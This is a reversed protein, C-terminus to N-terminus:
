LGDRLMSSLGSMLVESKWFIRLKEVLNAVLLGNESRLLVKVSLKDVNQIGVV